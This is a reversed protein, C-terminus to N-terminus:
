NLLINMQPSSLPFSDVKKLFLHQIKINLKTKKVNSSIEENFTYGIIYQYLPKFSCFFLCFYYSIGTVNKNSYFDTFYLVKSITQIRIQCLNKFFLLM